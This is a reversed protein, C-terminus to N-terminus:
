LQAKHRVAIARNRSKDVVDAEDITQMVRNEMVTQGGIVVTDVDAGRASYVLTAIPDHAPTLHPAQMNVLTLDAIFGKQISGLCHGMGLAKANGRTAM